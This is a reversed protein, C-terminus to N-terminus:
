AYKSKCHMVINFYIFNCKYKHERYYISGFSTSLVEEFSLLNIIFTEAAYYNFVRRSKETKVLCLQNEKLPMYKFKTFSQGFLYRQTNIM